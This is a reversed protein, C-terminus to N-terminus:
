SALPVGASWAVDIARRVAEVNAADEIPSVMFAKSGADKISAGVHFYRKGDVVIFRDHFDAKTRVEVTVHPLQKAFAAFEVKFDPRLNKEVTLFRVQLPGGTVARLTALLTSGLYGDVITLDSRAAGLVDRISVYADYNSNPPFFTESILADQTVLLGDEKVGWGINDLRDELKAKIADGDARAFMARLLRQVFPGRHEEPTALYAASVEPKRARIRTRHSYSDTAGLPKWHAILGTESVADEVFDADNIEYLSVSIPGWPDFTDSITSM